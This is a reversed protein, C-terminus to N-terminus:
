QYVRFLELSNSLSPVECDMGKEAIGSGRRGLRGRGFLKYGEVTTNWNHTKQPNHEEPLNIGM